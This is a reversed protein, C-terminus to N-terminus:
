SVHKAEYIVENTLVNPDWTAYRGILKIGYPAEISEERILGSPNTIARGFGPNEGRIEIFYNSSIMHRVVRHMAYSGSAIYLYNWPKGRLSADIQSVEAYTVPHSDLTWDLDCDVLKQFLPAPITSICEDYPQTVEGGIEPSVTLEGDTINEVYGYMVDVHERLADILNDDVFLGAFEHGPTGALQGDDPIFEEPLKRRLYREGFGKDPPKRSLKGNDFYAVKVNKRFVTVGLEDFLQLTDEDEHIVVFARGIKSEIFGAPEPTIVTYEPNFYGVLMGALGGGIVYKSM